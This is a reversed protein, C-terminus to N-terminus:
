FVRVSDPMTSGDPQHVRIRFMGRTAPYTVYREDLRTFNGTVEGAQRDFKGWVTMDLGSENRTADIRDLSYAGNRGITGFLRVSLSDSLPESDPAAISDVKVVFYDYRLRPESCQVAVLSAVLLWPLAGALSGWAPNPERM